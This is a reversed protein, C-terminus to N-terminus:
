EPLALIVADGSPACRVSHPFVGHSLGSQENAYKGDQEQAMSLPRTELGRRRPHEIEGLRGCERM